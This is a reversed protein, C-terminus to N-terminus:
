QCDGDALQDAGDYTWTKAFLDKMSVNGAQADVMYYGGDAELGGTADPIFEPFFVHHSFPDVSQFAVVWVYSLPDQGSIRQISDEAICWKVLRALHESWEIEPPTLQQAITVAEQESILPEALRTAATPSATPTPTQGRPEARSAPSPVGTDSPGCAAASGALMILVM